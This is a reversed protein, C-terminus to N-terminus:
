FLSVIFGASAGGMLITACWGLINSRRSITFEGMVTPNTAIQMLLAMIPAAVLANLVASWVLAKIPSVKLINAAAGILTACGITAYFAKAHKPQKSLGVPWRKAEGLAYAASGALVPVSLLGTGIIGIAFLAFAFSGALPRLAQAAQAASQITDIHATHLTAAATAMIALAVLNSVGMGILTDLRIRALADPAQKPKRRLPQRVPEAKTDEVEQSAQWFFLYPSVTTGLIAAVMLWFEKSWEIRPWVLGVLFQQWPLHVVCLVAFYAFLSLTLWKLVGVYRKHHLFIQGAACVLSFFILFVWAPVAPLLLRAAEAMAGLDAGINCVNAFTLAGVLAFLTPRPYHRRLIGAVGVGTTRGIRASLAQIVVMLPYTLLLTWALSFGFQAGAQSYTAIGSPDDDAAGTVLGPGLIRLLRPKTPEVVDSRPNAPSNVSSGKLKAASFGVTSGAHSGNL